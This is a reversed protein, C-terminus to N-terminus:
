ARKAPLVYRLADMAASVPVVNMDGLIDKPINELDKINDKPLLVNKIGLRYAALLKEKVGGIPLAKGRLSIEGTMAVDQRVELGTLASYIACAIAIGASPGDKPTAGEPVHVHIDHSKRFEETIGDEGMHKRVFTLATRASEKMVDGLSGTLELNGSGPMVAVEIPMVVGGVSTWALGNVAGVEPAKDTEPRSYKPAGLYKVLMDPKIRLPTRDKDPQELREVTVKRIIRGLVRELNRVGAEATYGEIIDKIAGDSIKLEADPMGNEELQKKWLHRKAIQLKEELTYSPVEIVEMRDYLPKPIAEATNATTIFLVHSLDFPAELYHDRFRANQEPDLVELMASAPDGRMDSAMKDIEDFLFVPNMVGCQKIASIVRGPMAAVYTRRHGRLEAEDHVGGLAVQCFKRNLARAISKAISTKGVGPAGVLCLIPSKPNEKVSRVALFELIRKKVEDLAYHDENLVRRARPIDTKEKTYKGWPLELMYEIYNEMVAAEPSQPTARKLRKIEKETRERAEANMELAKLKKEYTGVEDDGEGLEEEIVRQQEHLFYERNNKDMRAQVEKQIEAALKMNACESRLYAGALICREVPDACELIRQRNMFSDMVTNALKDAFEGPETIATLLQKTEGGTEGKIDLYREYEQKAIMLAARGQPSDDAYAPVRVIEATKYGGSEHVNKLVARANVNVLVRLTGDPLPMVQKIRAVCGMDFLDKKDPEDTDPDRQCVIFIDGQVGMAHELAALSESRGADFHFTTGPFPVIGRLPVMDFLEKALKAM